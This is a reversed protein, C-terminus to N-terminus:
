EEKNDEYDFKFLEQKVTTEGKQVSEMFDIADSLQKIDKDKKADDSLDKQKLDLSDLYMKIINDKEEESAEDFDKDIELGVDCLLIGDLHDLQEQFVHAARGMLESQVVKGLPNMYVIKIKGYRPRIYTKDPLSECTERSLEFPGVSTIIPNIFTKIDGSFNICFMRYYCGIQPASLAILNKDAIIKKLDLIIERITVGKKKVDIEDSRESLAEYDTIIEKM